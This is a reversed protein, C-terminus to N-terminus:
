PTSLKAATRSVISDLICLITATLGIATLMLFYFNRKKPTNVQGLDLKRTLGSAVLAYTEKKPKALALDVKLGGDKLYSNVQEIRFAADVVNDAGPNAILKGRIPKNKKPM